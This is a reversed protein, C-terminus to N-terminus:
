YSCELNNIRDYIELGKNKPSLQFGGATNPESTIVIILRKSKNIFVLQGGHGRMMLIDRSADHWWYYGFTINSELTKSDPVKASTMEALWDSSVIQEGNWNGGNIMLQGFKGLERPTTLIGFPGMTIGDKYTEWQLISIGIRDFLVQKAWDRMTKGTKEQIIASIFQPDGDNYNFNTGSSSNMKLGLIFDLSNSPKQRLLASSQGFVGDNSFAIGSQMTLLNEITIQSKDSNLTQPLYKSIPDNVTEIYNQEIAIGTLIGM